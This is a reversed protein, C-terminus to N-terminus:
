EDSDNRGPVPTSPSTRAATRENASAAYFAAECPDTIPTAQWTAGDWRETFTLHGGHLDCRAAKPSRYTAPRECRTRASGDPRYTCRQASDAM